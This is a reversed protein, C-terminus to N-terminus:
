SAPCVEGLGIAVSRAVLGTLVAKEDRMVPSNFGFIETSFVWSASVTRLVSRAMHIVGAYLVDGTATQGCAAGGTQADCDLYLRIAAGSVGPQEYNCYSTNLYSHTLSAYDLTLVTGNSKEVTVAQPCIGEIPRISPPQEIANKAEFLVLITKGVQVSTFPDRASVTFIDKTVLGDRPPVDISLEGRQTLATAFKLDAM